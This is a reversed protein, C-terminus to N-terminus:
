GEDGDKSWEVWGVFSDPMRKMNRLCDENYIKNVEIM